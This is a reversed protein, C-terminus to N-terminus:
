LSPGGQGWHERKEAPVWLEPRKRRGGRPQMRLCQDPKSRSVQFCLSHDKETVGGPGQTLQSSWSSPGETPADVM